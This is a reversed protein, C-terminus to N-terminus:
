IIDGINDIWHMNQEFKDFYKDIQQKMKKYQKGGTSKELQLLGDM